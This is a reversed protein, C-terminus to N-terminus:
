EADQQVQLQHEQVDEWIDPSLFPPSLSTPTGLSPSLEASAVQQYIQPLPVLSGVSWRWLGAWSSKRKCSGFWATLRYHPQKPAGTSSLSILFPFVQRRWIRSLTFDWNHKRSAQQPTLGLSRTTQLIFGWSSWVESGRWLLGMSDNGVRRIDILMEKAKEMNFCLNRSGCWVPLQEVEMRYASKDSHGILGLGTTDDAFNAIHNGLHFFSMSHCVNYPNGLLEAGQTELEISPTHWFSQGAVMHGRTSREVESPIHVARLPGRRGEHNPVSGNQLVALSYNQFWLRQMIGPPNFDKRSVTM